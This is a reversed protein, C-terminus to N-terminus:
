CKANIIFRTGVIKSIFFALLFHEPLLYGTGINILGVGTLFLLMIFDSPTKNSRLRVVFIKLLIGVIMSCIVIYFVASVNFDAYQVGIGFAPSGTDLDYWEPYYNEALWFTGFNKPKNPYLVRPIRSFINEEFTLKGYQPSLNTDDIVLMANRTYDSYSSIKLIINDFSADSLTSFFLMVMVTCFCFVYKIMQLFGIKNNDIYVNYMILILVLEIVHGKSGHLYALIFCILFFIVKQIIGTKKKFLFLIFGINLAVDSTFYALGYGTRTQIYIERPSFLYERFEIIMPLYLLFAIVLFIYPSLKVNYYDNFPMKVRNGPYLIFAIVLAAYSLAYTAYVYAYAFFSGSYGNNGINILELIYNAPIAILLSPSLVNIYSHEYRVILLYLIVVIFLSVLIMLEIMIFNM